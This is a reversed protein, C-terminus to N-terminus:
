SDGELKLYIFALFNAVDKCEDRIAQSDGRKIASWLEEWEELLRDELFQISYSSWPTLSRNEKGTGNCRGCSEHVPDDDFPEDGILRKGTGECRHCEGTARELFKDMMADFFDAHSLETM